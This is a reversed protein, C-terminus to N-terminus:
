TFHQAPAWATKELAFFRVRFRHHSDALMQTVPAAQALFYEVVGLIAPLVPLLQINLRGMVLVSFQGVEDRHLGVNGQALRLLLCHAVGVSFGLTYALHFGAKKGVHAVLYTCWEIANQTDGLIQTAAHRLCKTLVDVYQM